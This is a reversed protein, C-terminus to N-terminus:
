VCARAELLGCNLSRWDRRVLCVVAGPDTTPVGLQWLLYSAGLLDWLVCVGNEKRQNRENGVLM